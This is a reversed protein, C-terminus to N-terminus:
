PVFSARRTCLPRCSRDSVQTIGHKRWPDLDRKIWPLYYSREEAATSGEPLPGREQPRIHCTKLSASRMIHV